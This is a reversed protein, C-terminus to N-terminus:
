ARSAKAQNKFFARMELWLFYGGSAAGVLTLAIRSMPGSCFRDAWGFAVALSIYYAPSLMAMKRWFLDGSVVRALQFGGGFLSICNALLVIGLVGDVGGQGRLAFACLVLFIGELLSLHRVKAFDGTMGFAGQFCRSAVTSILIAGLIADGQFSWGVKGHTWVSIFERNIGMLLIGLVTALAISTATIQYFRFAFREREGRVFLETLGPAASELIRGILQQGMSLAKTAVAYVAAADLGLFKTVLIVPSAACLLGGLQMMFVDRGFRIMRLFLALQFTGRGPGRPFLHLRRCCVWPFLWSWLSGLASGLLFSYIGWGMLFGGAMTTLSTLLNASTAWHTIDTRQHAWLPSSEGRLALGVALILGQGALLTQFMALKDRPIELFGPLAWAGALALLFIFFSQAWFVRRGTQLINGYEGKQMSDKHDALFRAASSTMGLDLLMLYSAVQTVLVWLGFEARPLFHLALPVSVLTYVLNAGFAFYGATLGAWFRKKRDLTKDM